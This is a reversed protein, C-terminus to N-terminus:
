GYPDKKLTFTEQGILSDSLTDKFYIYTWGNESYYELTDPLNEDPHYDIIQNKDCSMGGLGMFMTASRLPSYAGCHHCPISMFDRHRWYLNRKDDRHQEKWYQKDVEDRFAYFAWHKGDAGTDCDGENGWHQIIIETM